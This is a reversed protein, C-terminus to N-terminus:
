RVIVAGRATAENFEGFFEYRGPKLPGIYISTQANAPIIKERHLAHSEFEEASADQNDITLLFKEGAPIQLEAPSFRHDRIKLFLAPTEARTPLAALQLAALLAWSATPVWRMRKLTRKM